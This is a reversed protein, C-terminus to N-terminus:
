GWIAKLYLLPARYEFRPHDDTNVPISADQLLRSVGDPGMIYTLATDPSESQVTKLVAMPDVPRDGNVGVLLYDVERDTQNPDVTAWVYTNPYASAFTKIMMRRDSEDLLAAPFWQVIVGGENLLRSSEQFSELTLMRAAYTSLPLSPMSSIMDYKKHSTAYLHRADDLVISSRPNGEIADDQFYRCATVIAPNLEVTDVHPKSPLGLAYRTTTGTGLGVVLIERTPSAIASPLSVVIRNTTESEGARGGTNTSSGGENVGSARLTLTGDPAQLVAVRGQPADKSYIVSNMRALAIMDTARASSVPARAVLELIPSASNVSLLSTLAILVLGGAPVLRRQTLAAADSRFAVRLVVVAAAMNLAAAFGTSGVTSLTPMLVLGGILSGAVAGATNLAYATGIDRGLGTRHSACLRMAIPATAGLLVCPAAVVLFTILFQSAMFPFTGSPLNSRAVYYALPAGRTMMITLMAAGAGAVQLVGITGAAASRDQRNRGGLWQGLALGTLAAALMTAIAYVSASFVLLLERTWVTEYIMISAGSLTFAFLTPAVTSRLGPDAQVDESPAPRAKPEGSAGTRSVLFLAAGLVIAAASGLLVTAQVGLAPTLWFGGIVVGIVSGSTGAAYVASAGRTIDKRDMAILRGAVPFAAGVFATPVLTMATALSAGLALLSANSVGLSGTRYVNAVGAYLPLALAGSTGLGVSLMSLLRVPNAARDAFRGVIWAGAAMGVMFLATILAIATVTSGLLTTLQRTWSVQYILSVGGMLGILALIWADRTRSGSRVLTSM